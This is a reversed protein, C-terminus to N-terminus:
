DPKGTRLAVVLDDIGSVVMVLIGILMSSMPIWVPIPVLGLTRENMGYSTMVLDLTYWALWALLAIMVMLCGLELWHQAPKPLMDRVALARAHGRARHTSALGFFLSGGMCFTAFDDASPVNSGLLRSVIQAVTLAGILILLVVSVAGSIRYVWDLSARM